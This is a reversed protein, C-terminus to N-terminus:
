AAELIDGEAGGVDIRLMWIPCTRRAGLYRRTYDHSRFTHPGEARTDGYGTGHICQVNKLRKLTAEPGPTQAVAWTWLQEPVIVAPAATCSAIWSRISSTAVFDM